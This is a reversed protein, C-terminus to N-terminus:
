ARSSIRAPTLPEDDPCLLDEHSYLAIDKLDVHATDTPYELRFLDRTESFDVVGLDRGVVPRTGDAKCCLDLKRSTEWIEKDLLHNVTHVAKM